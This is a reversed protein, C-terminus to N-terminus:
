GKNLVEDLNLIVNGIMTWAALEGPTFRPDPKTEGTSILERAAAVQKSYHALFDQLAANLEALDRTDPRRAAALRFMYILRDDTTPGAERLTREALGRSAEIMQPENLLLLAQLPTNTRERRVLCAERSPADFTTMQPPPSTRKWFTYLSRRHVKEAGTDATFRATNSDTYGVAEWLGAPQPPKVSPGGLHEVLIGALYFAQDRITEADLRHRPGHSLLRNAPDRAVIEPTVHASQRYTASMVLRKMFRKM